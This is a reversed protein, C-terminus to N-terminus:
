KKKRTVYISEKRKKKKVNWKGDLKVRESGFGGVRTRVGPVMEGTYADLVFNRPEGRGKRTGRTVKEESGGDGRVFIHM